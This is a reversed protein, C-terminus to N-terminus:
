QEEMVAVNGQTKASARGAAFDSATLGDQKMMSKMVSIDTSVDWAQDRFMGDLITEFANNITDLSEKIEKKATLINEGQVPQAEMEQYASVLKWTTPLYYDMFQSLNGAESPEEKVREFIRTVINELRTLKETIEPEPMAANSARFKEIYDNGKELVERVDSSLAGYRQEMQEQERRLAESAEETRRYQEYIADTAIMTTEKDDLHGQRFQKKEILRRLEKRTFEESKGVAEALDKVPAYLRSRLLEVYKKYRKARRKLGLGYAFVGGGIALAALALVAAGLSPTGLMMGVIRFVSLAAVIGGGTMMLSGAADGEPPGFLVPQQPVANARLPASRAGAGMRTNHPQGAMMNKRRAEYAARGAGSANMAQQQRRQYASANQANMRQQASNGQAGSGTRNVSAGFFANMEKNIRESLKEFNDSGLANDVLNVIQEGFDSRFEGLAQKGKQPFHM